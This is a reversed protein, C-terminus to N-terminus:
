PTAGHFRLELTEPIKQPAHTATVISPSRGADAADEQKVSRPRVL